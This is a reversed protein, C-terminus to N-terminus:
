RTGDKEIKRTLLSYIDTFQLADCIRVLTQPRPWARGEEYAQYTKISFEKQPTCLKAAMQQQTLGKKERLHILNQVFFLSM